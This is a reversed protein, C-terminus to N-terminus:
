KRTIKIIFIKPKLIKGLGAGGCCFAGAGFGLVNSRTLKEKFLGAGVLTGLIIVGMNMSAFVLAPEKAM